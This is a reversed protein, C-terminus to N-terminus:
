EQTSNDSYEVQEYTDAFEQSGIIYRSKGVVDPENPNYSATVMCNEDGSMVGWSKKVQIPQSVPNQIAKVMGKAKFIGPQDTGEYRKIFEDPKIVYQEGGPNMVIYDGPEAINVTEETGDALVTRVEERKEAVVAAVNVKKRYIPAEAFRATMEETNLDIEQPLQETQKPYDEM